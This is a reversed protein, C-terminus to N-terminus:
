IGSHISLAFITYSCTCNTFLRALSSDSKKQLARHHSSPQNLTLIERREKKRSSEHNYMQVWVQSQSSGHSLSPLRCANGLFYSTVFLHHITWQLIIVIFSCPRITIIMIKNAALVLALVFGCDAFCNYSYAEATLIQIKFSTLYTWSVSLASKQGLFTLFRPIRPTQFRFFLRMQIQYERLPAPPHCLTFNNWEDWM